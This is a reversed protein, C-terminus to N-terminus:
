RHAGSETEGYHVAHSVGEPVLWVAVNPPQRISTLPIQVLSVTNPSREM